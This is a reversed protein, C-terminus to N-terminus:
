IRALVSESAATVAARHEEVSAIVARDARVTRYGELLGGVRRVREHLLVAVYGCVPAAVAALLGAWAGFAEGVVIGIAVYVLLFSVFCGLLKVTAKIGENTPKKALSKMIQFPVIHVVVGIVAIPLAIIVKVASWVIALRLRGRPYGATVQSDSLGLLELDREYTAFAGRLNSLQAADPGQELAALRAAVALQDALGIDAPLSAGPSRVIVEAMRACREAEAWSSFSPNVASLQASLDRTLARVAAHADARYSDAQGAVGFPVALRVLARSRFRAKADYTLGVAVIALDDIGGDFAAELAIRAAGTKLPQLSLEDHSIGEPFVAIMGGKALIDRSKAFASVNRDGAGADIARYVPIVGALKLLPWLPPIRFLTSKGLFRPFRGMTAMLLLGDVLGNTHNAVVIVPGARPLLDAGDVELTRFFIRILVKALRTM